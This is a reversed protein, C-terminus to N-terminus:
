LIHQCKVHVYLVSERCLGHLVAVNSEFGM